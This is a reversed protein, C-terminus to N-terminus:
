FAGSCHTMLDSFNKLSITEQDLESESLEGYGYSAFFFTQHNARAAERDERSDGVVASSTAQVRHRDILYRLM